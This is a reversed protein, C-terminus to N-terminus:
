KQLEWYIFKEGSKQDVVPLSFSYDSAKQKGVYEWHYGDDLQKQSQEFFEANDHAFLALILVLGLGM